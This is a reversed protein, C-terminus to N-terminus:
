RYSQPKQRDLLAAFKETMRRSSYPEAYAPRLTVPTKGEGHAQVLDALYKVAPSDDSGFFCVGSGTHALLRALESDEPAWALIPRGSALMTYVRGTSLGREEASAVGLYMLSAESLIAITERRPQWGYRDFIEQVGCADIQRELWQGDVEGVQRVRVRPFVEPRERRLRALLRLLPAVPTIENLAGLVGIVFPSGAPLTWGAALAEDYCNSIVTGAGVYERVTENVATVESAEDRIAALLRQARRRRRPRNAYLQEPRHITWYDRFDAIWPRKFERSLTRAVLHASVPPSTSIIADYDRNALLTRGLATARRVWGIKPDPFYWDALARGKRIVRDAVTRIGMLRMLRQPDSSGARYIHRGPLGDLLEPEFARYAVPKVSLVHCEWGFEPLHKFLALPRAVGAGSLPPFYYCV